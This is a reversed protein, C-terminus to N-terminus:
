DQVGPLSALSSTSRVSSVQKCILHCAYPHAMAQANCPQTERLAKMLQGVQWTRFAIGAPSEPQRQGPSGDWVPQSAKYGEKPHDSDSLM